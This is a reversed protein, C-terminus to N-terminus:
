GHGRLEDARVAWGPHTREAAPSAREVGSDVLAETLSTKGALVDVLGRDNEAGFFRHLRPRRVDGSVVIVQKGVNALVVALNAATTTKGEGPSPSTILIVKVGRQDAPFSAATRLSRYAEAGAGKPQQVTVLKAQSRRRWDRVKPIVALVPSGTLAALDERGRLRDDLRERLFAFGVGLALGVFLALAGNRLYNPSVPSKPLDAKKIIDGPGILPTNLSDLQHLFVNLQGTLMLKQTQEALTPTIPTGAAAIREDLKRLQANLSKIRTLLPQRMAAATAKVEQMRSELYAESVAAAGEQARLPDPDTFGIQLVQTNLPSSVSLHHLLAQPSPSDPMKSAAVTAVKDSMVVQQETDMDVKSGPGSTQFSSTIPKVLVKATSLYQPTQRFSVLMGAGLVLLAIGLISWKRQRLVRLSDRLTSEPSTSEPQLNEQM